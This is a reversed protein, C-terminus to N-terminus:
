YKSVANTRSYSRDFTSGWDGTSSMTGATLLGSMNGATMVVGPPAALTSSMMANPDPHRETQRSAARNFEQLLM